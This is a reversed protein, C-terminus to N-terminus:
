ITNWLVSFSVSSLKLNRIVIGVTSTHKSVMDRAARNPVYGTQKIAALIRERKDAKVNDQQNLVRSVTSVSVGALKAIDKISIM